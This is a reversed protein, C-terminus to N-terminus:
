AQAPKAAEKADKSDAKAFWEEAFDDAEITEGVAAMVLVGDLYAGRPGTSINTVKVKAM